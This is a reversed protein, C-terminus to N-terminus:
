EAAKVLKRNAAGKVVEKIGMKKMISRALEPYNTTIQDIGFGLSKEIDEPKDVTWLNVSMGNRRASPIWDENKYANSFHSDIGPVGAAFVEDPTMINHLYQVTFGPCLRVLTKCAEISFSIFIVKEPDLLGYERLKEVCLQCCRDEMERTKHFKVELVLTTNTNKVAQALYDDLTPIPEGNKLRFDKFAEYNNDNINVGQFNEDHNVLVVEDATMNVDFESGWFGCDQAAKLAAVSNQAYGAAECNWYGRHAVVATQVAPKCSCLACLAAMAFLIKKM